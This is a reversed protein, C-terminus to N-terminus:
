ETWKYDIVSHRVKTCLTFIINWQLLSTFMKSWHLGSSCWVLTSCLSSLAPSCMRSYDWTLVLLQVSARCCGVMDTWTLGNAREHALIIHALRLLWAHRTCAYVTATISSLDCSMLKSGRYSLHYDAPEFMCIYGWLSNEVHREIQVDNFCSIQDSCITWPSNFMHCGFLHQSNMDVSEGHQNM